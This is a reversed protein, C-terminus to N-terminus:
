IIELRIHYTEDEISQIMSQITIYGVVGQYRDKEKDYKYIGFDDGDFIVKFDKRENLHKILSTSKESKM